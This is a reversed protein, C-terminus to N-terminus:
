CGNDGVRVKVEVPRIGQATLDFGAFRHKYLRLEATKEQDALEFNIPLEMRVKVPKGKQLGPKWDGVTKLVRVAEEDCGGGIGKLVEIDTLKGYENVVFSLLVQGEIRKEVAEEPYKLSSMLFGAWANMGEMPMPAQEVVDFVADPEEEALPLTRFELKSDLQGQSDQSDSGISSNQESRDCAVLFTVLAALPLALWFRKKMAQTSKTKNMMIIRKKTQFHSFYHICQFNKQTSLLRVLLRSYDFSSYSRTVARDAEFEHVERISKEFLYILPNFWLLIKGMQIVLLDYTHYNKVHVSEHLIIQEQDSHAPQFDPLLIFSFFSAPQFRPHIAIRLGDHYIMKAKRLLLFSKSLGFILRGFTFVAGILYSVGLVVQWDWGSWFNTQEDPTTSGISIEPLTMERIIETDSLIEFSLLPLFLSCLFSGLLYARNWGFFTLKELVLKYFGWFIALCISLELLYNSWVNM